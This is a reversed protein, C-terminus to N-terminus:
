RAWAADHGDQDISTDGLASTQSQHSFAAAYARKRQQVKNLTGNMVRVDYDTARSNVERDIDSLLMAAEAFPGFQKEACYRRDYQQKYARYEPRRCYEIHRPMNVKRVAAAQAPDYTRKHYARKKTKIDPLNAARYGVDYEKKELRKQETSKNSRRAIGACARNCSLRLGARRARNVESARKDVEIGCGACIIKM